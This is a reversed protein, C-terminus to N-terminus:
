LAEYIDRVDRIGPIELLVRLVKLSERVVSENRDDAKTHYKGGHFLNNRARRVGNLLVRVDSHGNREADAFRPANGDLVLKKPPEKLLYSGGDLIRKKDADSLGDIFNTFVEWDPEAGGSNGRRGYNAEILAYEFRAFTVFFELALDKHLGM